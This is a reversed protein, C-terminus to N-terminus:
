GEKIIGYNTMDKINCDFCVWKIHNLEDCKVFIGRSDCGNDCQKSKKSKDCQNGHKKM